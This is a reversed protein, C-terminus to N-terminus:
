ASVEQVEQPQEPEVADIQRQHRGSEDGLLEQDDRRELGRSGLPREARSGRELGAIRFFKVTEDLDLFVKVSRTPGRM